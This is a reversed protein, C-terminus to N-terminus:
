TGKARANLSANFIGTIATPFKLSGCTASAVSAFPSASRTATALPINFSGYQPNCAIFATARVTVGGTRLVLSCDSLTKYLM